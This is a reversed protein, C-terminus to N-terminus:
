SPGPEDFLDAHQNGYDARYVAIPTPETRSAEVGQVDLSKTNSGVQVHKTCFDLRRKLLRLQAIRNSSKKTTQQLRNLLNDRLIPNSPTSAFDDTMEGCLECQVSEFQVVAPPVQSLPQKRARCD